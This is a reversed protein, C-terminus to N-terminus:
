SSRETEALVELAGDLSQLVLESDLTVEVLEELRVVGLGSAESVLGERGLLHRLLVEQTEVALKLPLGLLEEEQPLRYFLHLQPYVCLFM